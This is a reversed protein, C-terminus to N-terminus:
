SKLYYGAGHLLYTLLKALRIISSTVCMEGWTTENKVSTERTVQLSRVFCQFEVMRIKSRWKGTV